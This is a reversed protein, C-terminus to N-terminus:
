KEESSCYKKIVRYADQVGLEGAKSLDICGKEKEKLYIQSLGRNYYAEPIWSYRELAKSYYQIALPFDNSLCYLNGLNYYTYPFEPMLEVAKEMDNIAASYDYIRVSKDTVRGRTTGANDLSLVQVSSEVSSIFDIMESQLVGRNLYFFMQDPVMMIAEDYCSVATNFQKDDSELLAKAFLLEPSRGSKLGKDVADMLPANLYRSPTMERSVLQIDIPISTIFRDMRTNEYKRGLLMPNYQAEASASFRYLPKLRIDVSRNQLLEEDNFDRKAFDADLSLLEDYKKTTDAFNATGATQSVRYANVKAQATEYDSKAAKTKGIKQRVFSRNMYAKAFDPYLEIAKSYDKEADSYRGLEIFVSARNFYALVNKPNIELVRDLDDLALDFAGTQARILARNYLTLSNTPELELVRDLDQLAGRFNQADYRVLGRNFYAFTNATDLAVAHDLDDIAKPLDHQLYYVRARRIYGEPEFSNLTIAKDYDAIAKLTDGTFLYCAGRNLYADAEKPEKNIFKNFDDIAKEFQQSLLYTVGRSFYLGTYGPRLDVAEELDRLAQDYKGTRSLTIARYHYAPTYLPNIELTQDFDLEAGVYDALNYKAIGRFFYAEYCKPDLRILVNLNDIALSYKGDVLMQRGRYFFMNRDYQASMVVEGAMLVSITLMLYLFIRKM